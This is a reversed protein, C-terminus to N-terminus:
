NQTENLGRLEEMKEKILRDIEGKLPHGKKIHLDIFEMEMVKYTLDNIDFCEQNIKEKKAKKMFPYRMKLIKYLIRKEPSDKMKNNKLINYSHIMVDVVQKYRKMNEPFM